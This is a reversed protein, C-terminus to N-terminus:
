SRVIGLGLIQWWVLWAWFLGLGVRRAGRFPGSLALGGTLGLGLPLVAPFFYRGQPQFGHSVFNVLVFFALVGALVLAMLASGQVAVRSPRWGRALRTLVSVATLGVLTLAIMGAQRYALPPLGKNMWGFRAFVSEWTTELVARWDAISDIRLPIFRARFFRAADRTGTPEGYVIINRVFWWGSVLALSASSGLIMRSARRLHAAGPPIQVVRFLGLLALGPLLVLANLKTLIALGVMTGSRIMWPDSEAQRLSQFWSAFALACTAHVLADNSATASNFTFQPLLGITGATAWAWDPEHPALRRTALWCAVVTIAGCAVSVLRAVLLVDLPDSAFPRSILAVLLYYLPAQMAEYPALRLEGEIGHQRATRAVTPSMPPGVIEGNPDRDFRFHVEPVRGRRAQEIADLHAPEDPADFPGISL